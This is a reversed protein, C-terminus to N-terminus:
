KTWEWALRSHQSCSEGQAGTQACQVSKSGRKLRRVRPQTLTTARRRMLSINKAQSACIRHGRRKTFGLATQCPGSSPPTGVLMAGKMTSVSSSKLLPIMELAVHGGLSWGLVVVKSVRLQTLINVACEAYGPMTYTSEPESANGSSGHGPLDFALIRYKSTLLPSTLIQHFVKSSSSSNGYILLLVPHVSTSNGSEAVYVEGNATNLKHEEIM